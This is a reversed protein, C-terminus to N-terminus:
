GAVIAGTRLCAVRGSPDSRKKSISSREVLMSELEVPVWTTALLIYQAMAIRYSQEQHMAAVIDTDFHMGNGIAPDTFDPWHNSRVQLSRNPLFSAAHNRSLFIQQAESLM